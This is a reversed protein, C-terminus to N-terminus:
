SNGGAKAPHFRLFLRPKLRVTQALALPLDNEKKALAAETSSAEIGGAPPL